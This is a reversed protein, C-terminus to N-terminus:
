NDKLSDLYMKIVFKELNRKIKVFFEDRESLPLVLISLVGNRKACWVDTFIQDGILATTAPTAGLQAMAKDLGGRGPKRAKSISPVGLTANFSVVRAHRNNSLLGVKFGRKHLDDFLEATQPYPDAVDFPALTNDIDFLLNTIGARGLAGYDIDYVSDVYQDPFLNKLIM